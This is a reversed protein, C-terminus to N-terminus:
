LVGLLKLLGCLLLGLIITGYYVAAIVVAGVVLLLAGDLLELILM